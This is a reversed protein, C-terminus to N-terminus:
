KRDDHLRIFHKCGLRGYDYPNGEILEIDDARVRMLTERDLHRKCGFRQPCMARCYRKIQGM